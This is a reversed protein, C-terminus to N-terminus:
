YNRSSDPKIKEAEILTRWAARKRPCDEVSCARHQQMITQAHRVTLPSYPADHTWGIASRERGLRARIEQVSPGAQDDGFGGRWWDFRTM